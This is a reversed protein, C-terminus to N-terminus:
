FFLICSYNHLHAVMLSQRNTTKSLRQDANCHARKGLLRSNTLSWQGGKRQIFPDQTWVSLLNKIKQYALRVDEWNALKGILTMVGQELLEDGSKNTPQIPLLSSPNPIKPSGALLRALKEWSAWTPSNELLTRAAELVVQGSSIGKMIGQFVVLQGLVQRLSNVNSLWYAGDLLNSHHTCIPVNKGRLEPKEKLTFALINQM